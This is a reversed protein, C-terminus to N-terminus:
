QDARRHGVAPDWAPPSTQLHTRVRDLFTAADISSDGNHSLTPTLASVGEARWKVEDLESLERALPLLAVRQPRVRSQYQVWTEYRHTLKFRRGHILAVISMDTANHIAMPHVGTYRQGTFRHGWTREVSPDVTVVALDLAPDEEISILKDDIARETATLREDDDIWLDRYVDIDDIMRPLHELGVPYPDGPTLQGTISITASIRAARRDHYTGFDGAAAIDELLERHEMAHHPAVLAYVGVLGDQDFHNNTVVEADGHLDLGREGYRLAMQALLDAKLSPETCPFGPWHTLSLVTAENPSGDIVVNPVVRSAEYEVYRVRRFTSRRAPPM